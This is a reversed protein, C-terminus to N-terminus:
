SNVGSSAPTSYPLGAPVTPRISSRLRRVRAARVTM